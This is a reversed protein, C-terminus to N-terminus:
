IIIHKSDQKNSDYGYYCQIFTIITDAYHKQKTKQEKKERNRSEKSKWLLIIYRQSM